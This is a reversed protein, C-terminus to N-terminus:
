IVLQANEGSQQFEVRLTTDVDTLLLWCGMLAQNQAGQSLGACGLAKRKWESTSSVISLRGRTRM